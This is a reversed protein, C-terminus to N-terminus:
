SQALRSSRWRLRFELRHLLPVALGACVALRGCAHYPTLLDILRPAAIVMAIRAASHGKEHRLGTGGTGETESSPRSASTRPAIWFARSAAAAWGFSPCAEPRRPM